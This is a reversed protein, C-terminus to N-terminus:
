EVQYVHVKNRDMDIDMYLMRNASEVKVTFVRYTVNSVRDKPYEFYFMEQINKEKCYRQLSYTVMGYLDPLTTIMEDFDPTTLYEWGDIVFSNYEIDWMDDPWDCQVFDALKESRLSVDEDGSNGEVVYIQGKIEEYIYIKMRYTDIVIIITPDEGIRFFYKDNSLNQTIKKNLDYIYTAEGRIFTDHHMMNEFLQYSYTNEIMKDDCYKELAYDVFSKLQVLDDYVDQTILNESEQETMQEEKGGLEGTNRMCIFIIGGILVGALFLTVYKLLKVAKNSKM